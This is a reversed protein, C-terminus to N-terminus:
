RRGTTQDPSEPRTAAKGGAIALIRATLAAIQRRDGGALAEALQNRLNADILRWRPSTMAEFLKSGIVASGVAGTVGGGTAAGTVLGGVGTAIQKLGPGQAQTRGLTAELVKRLDAWFAYERNVKALDPVQEALLARIAKTAQKKAWAESQERLPIGVAGPARQAFGGAQEVVMDWARRVAVVQDVTADDGLKRLTDQLASLHQIPRKDLVVPVEVLDGVVRAGAAQAAGTRTAEAVSVQRPLRFASKAEELADIVPQLPVVQGSYHKLADDVAQGAEAAHETADVLLSQRSGKLGRQLIEPARKAAIAKFKEKTAGLAQTVKKTAQERLVPSLRSAIQGVVPV